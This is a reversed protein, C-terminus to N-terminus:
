SLRRDLCEIVHADLESISASGGLAHLASLTPNLLQLHTPVEVPSEPM